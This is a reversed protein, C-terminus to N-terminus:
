WGGFRPWQGALTGGALVHYHDHQAATACAHNPLIRLATGVPLDPLPGPAGPRLAIIGHEQNASVMMLDPILTGDRDCVLGYGHDVPQAQTGRDRSLATWGADVLIWGKDRQHGIVSGLVSIAIDDGACVGLGAMVLDQFMYVGARYETLGAANDSFLATPTSGASRVACPLGHDSLRAAATALADRERGAMARLEDEGRCAYSGGAHTMVGRLLRTGLTKAVQLLLPDTPRIGARHNDSDIEILVPIPEVRRAVSEAAEPNDLIVTLDVGNRRLAAVEDLKAEVIGVAYLIDRFGAAAFERAEALTSVTIPGGDPAALKAVEVSKATKMHPRLVVGPHREVARRMMALNRKLVGLDLVLAPTQIDDLTM